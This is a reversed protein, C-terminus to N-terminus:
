FDPSDGLELSVYAYSVSAPGGIAPDTSGICVGMGVAFISNCNNM